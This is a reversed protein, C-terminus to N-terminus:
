PGDTREVFALILANDYLLCTPAGELKTLAEHIHEHSVVHVFLRTLFDEDPEPCSLISRNDDCEKNLADLNVNIIRFRGINTTDERFTGLASGDEGFDPKFTYETM